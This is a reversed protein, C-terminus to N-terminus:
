HAINMHGEIAKVRQNDRLEDWRPDVALHTLGGARNSVARTMADVARNREGAGLLAIALTDAAVYGTAAREELRALVERAGALDGSKGLAWALEALSAASDNTLGLVRRCEAVAEAHNGQMTMVLALNRRAQPFDPDIELVRRLTIAADDFQRALYYVLGLATASNLSLPELESARRAERQAEAHRGTASLLYAYWQHATAYNSNIALARVFHQESAEWDWEAIMATRGMSAHAEASNPNLTLAQSAFARSRALASQPENLGYSALLSWADAAGVYAADYGPALSIARNFLEVANRLGEESRRSAAVRGREYLERAADPVAATPPAGAGSPRRSSGASALLAIVLGMMVAVPLLMLPKFTTQPLVVAVPSEPMAAPAPPDMLAQRRIDITVPAIFRYGRKPLTEIFRPSAASDGLADRLKTISKNVSQDFDIVVDSPWLQARLDERSVPQGHHEILLRLVEFPQRQLRITRGHKRLKGTQLEVEFVGFAAVRPVDIGTVAM